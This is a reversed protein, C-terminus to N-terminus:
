DVNINKVLKYLEDTIEHIEFAGKSNGAQGIGGSSYTLGDSRKLKEITLELSDRNINIKNQNEDEYFDCTRYEDTDSHSTGIIPLYEYLIIFNEIDLDNMIKLSEIISLFKYNLESKDRIIKGAIAGLIATSKLSKSNLASEIIEGVLLINKKNKLYKQLKLTEKDDIKYESYFESSYQKIFAKLTLRRKLNSIAIISKIPTIIDSLTDTYDKIPELTNDIFEDLNKINKINLINKTFEIIDNEEQSM